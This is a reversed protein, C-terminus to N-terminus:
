IQSLIPYLIYLKSYTIHLINKLDDLKPYMIYSIYCLIYSMSYETFFVCAIYFM